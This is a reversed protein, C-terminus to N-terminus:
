LLKGNTGKKYINGKPKGSNCIYFGVLDKTEPDYVVGTILVWHQEKQNLKM